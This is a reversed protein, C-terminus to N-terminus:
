TCWVPAGLQCPENRGMPSQWVWARVRPYRAAGVAVREANMAAVQSSDFRTGLLSPVPVAHLLELGAGLRNALEVSADLAHDSLTGESLAALVKRPAFRKTEM